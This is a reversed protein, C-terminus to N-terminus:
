AAVEVPKGDTLRYHTLPKIGGQGAIGAFVNIINWDEDRECLFIASGESAMASGFRGSAMAAGRYGTASAAKVDGTAIAGKVAKAGDFVTKIAAEIMEGLTIEATITIKAGAIKTDGDNETVHGGVSVIAFKSGAAPYYALVDLPHTCAHFGSNCPSVPGDHTYTKGVEYQFDRCTWDANFAKYATVPASM